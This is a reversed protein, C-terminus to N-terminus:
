AIYKLELSKKVTQEGGGVEEILLPSKRSKWGNVTKAVGFAFM